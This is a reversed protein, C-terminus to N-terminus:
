LDHCQFPGLDPSNGGYYGHHNPRSFHVRGQPGKLAAQAVGQNGIGICGALHQGPNLGLVASCMGLNWLGVWDVEYERKPM